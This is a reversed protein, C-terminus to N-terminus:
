KLGKVPGVGFFAKFEARLSIGKVIPSRFM